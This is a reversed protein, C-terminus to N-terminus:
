QTETVWRTRQILKRHTKNKQPYKNQKTEEKFKLLWNTNGAELFDKIDDMEEEVRFSGVVSWPVNTGMQVGIYNKIKRTNTSIIWLKVTVYFSESRLANKKTKWYQKKWKRLIRQNYREM